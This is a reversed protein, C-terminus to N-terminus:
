EHIGESEKAPPQDLPKWHTAEGHMGVNSYGLENRKGWSAMAVEWCWDAIRADHWGLMVLEEHPATEIPQWASEARVREYAEIAKRLCERWEDGDAPFYTWENKVAQYAAEIAKDNTVKEM